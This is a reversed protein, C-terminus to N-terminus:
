RPSRKLRRIAVIGLAPGIALVAFAWRWGAISAIWPVLQMTVMTLLFGMSTQLTLATGVAHRPAAETVMASFQASDAVVFFGWVLTVPVLLWLSRGYCLGILLSCAASMAMAIQVVRPYGMRRAAIGAWVCGVGGSALAAFAMLDAFRADVAGHGAAAHAGVSAVMFAPIWAWMAYLEWMHGLYGSIALRTDRHGWVELVLQLSFPRREFPFPGERYGTGVLIAALWAFSTTAVVVRELHVGSAAHLLYPTAKGITIAGVLTGIAFGRLSRFWTAVMKMAPPYVGALFFGTLFRGVLAAEYGPAVILFANALGALAAAVAFYRREPILDALNLAAACATGAVFGLQVVSTLWGSQAVSLDWRDRLQPAIAAAAFWVSIALLEALSVLALTRWRHPHAEPDSLASATHSMGGVISSGHM